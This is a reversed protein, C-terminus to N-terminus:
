WAATRKFSYNPSMRWILWFATAGVIGCAGMFSLGELYQLWGALTPVGNIMTQVGNISASTKLGPYRLPWSFIAAPVAGLLFGSPITTWWRVANRWRLLVYTPIGLVIVHAASIALCIVLFNRSRIWIYPDDPKFAEFQGYLYWLAMLCAPAFIAAAFAIILRM